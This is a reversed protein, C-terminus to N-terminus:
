LSAQNHNRQLQNKLFPCKKKYESQPSNIQLFMKAFPICGFALIINLKHKETLVLMLDLFLHLIILYMESLSTM